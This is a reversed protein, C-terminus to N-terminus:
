GTLSGRLGVKRSMSACDHPCEQGTYEFSARITHQMVHQQRARGCTFYRQVTTCHFCALLIDIILRSVLSVLSAYLNRRAETSFYGCRDCSLCLSEEREGRKQLGDECELLYILFHFLIRDNSSEKDAFIHLFAVQLV